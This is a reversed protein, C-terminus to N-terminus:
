SGEDQTRVEKIKFCKACILSKLKLGSIGDVCEGIPTPMIHPILLHEYGVWMHICRGLGYGEEIKQRAKALEPTDDKNM